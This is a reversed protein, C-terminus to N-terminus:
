PEFRLDLIERQKGWELTGKVTLPFQFEPPKKGGEAARRLAITRSRGPLVPSDDSIVEFENGSADKASLFGELRGHASGTNTVDVVPLKEGDRVIVRPNGVTLKAEAGGVVAYVIVGLRGAVPFRFSGQDVIAADMGEVMIAFRCERPPTDAPPTIEFRFRYRSNAPVTVERRELAVWPRCSDPALADSFQLADDKQFDWDNTYVRFRGPLQGAQHIELVQRSSEGANAKIEIRAPAVYASFGQALAGGSGGALVALCAAAAFGFSRDEM